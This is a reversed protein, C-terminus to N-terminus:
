YTRFKDMTFNKGDTSVTITGYHWTMLTMIKKRKWSVLHKPAPFHDKKTKGASIIIVEPSIENIFEPSSSSSSGHHPALLIDTDLMTTNNILHAEAKRSIDGPFLYSQSGHLLKFVLSSDNSNEPIFPKAGSPNNIGEMGLCVLSAFNDEAIKQGSMPQIIETGHNEADTLIQKYKSKDSRYTSIFLRKPKFHNHIFDMGSYHDSDPHTIIIDDLRWIRKKWLFPAIIRRGVNFKNSSYSGGDLLITKGQPLQILTSTGQGVDLFSVKTSKPSTPFWAGRVFLVILIISLSLPVKFDIKLKDQFLWLLGISYYALIEPTTPTITWISSAPLEVVISTISNAAKIGMGGLKFILIALDPSIYSIPIALLGLPLTWFCILPEVLLNTIPGIPSFRNFHFLLFPLTGLTAALSVGFATKLYLWYKYIVSTQLKTQHKRKDQERKHDLERILKPAILAITLVASFSLQFSVTFLSLPKLTLLILAAGSLIHVLSHERKLTLSLIVMTAMTAARVVPTNLGAILAYAILPILSMIAALTAIHFRNMLWTSQKMLFTLSFTIMLGLLSMHIGSIALLHMLGSHKYKELVEEAVLSKSGLLLALYISSYELNLSNTIFTAAQYRIREPFFQLNQTWSNKTEHIKEIEMPSRIWGTVYISQNAMHMVYDFAGPTKYNYTRQLTAIAMIINGPVINDPLQGNLTLRIKGYAKQMAKENKGENNRILLNEVEVILKTHTNNYEPMSLLTGSLTVKTKNQIINIINKQENPLKLKLSTHIYGTIFFTILIFYLIKNNQYHYSAYACSLSIFLLFIPFHYNDSRLHFSTTSGLIFFVTVSPLLYQQFSYNLTNRLKATPETKLINLIEKYFLSDGQLILNHYLKQYIIYIENNHETTIKFWTTQKNGTCAGPYSWFM